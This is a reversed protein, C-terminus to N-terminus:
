FPGKWSMQGHADMMFMGDEDFTAKGTGGGSLHEWPGTGGLFIMYSEFEGSPQRQFQIFAYVTEGSELTM